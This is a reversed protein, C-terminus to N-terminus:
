YVLKVEGEQQVERLYFKIEFHKTRGHFVPNPLIALAVQNDVLIETPGEVGMDLDLLLKRLWIAHNATATTAVFEGKATSQAVVEQKKSSWTFCGSGLTFCYGTTSRM